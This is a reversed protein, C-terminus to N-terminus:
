RLKTRTLSLLVRFVCPLFWVVCNRIKTDFHIHLYFFKFVVKRKKVVTTRRDVIIRGDSIWQKWFVDKKKSHSYCSLTFIDLSHVQTGSTLVPASDLLLCIFNVCWRDKGWFLPIICLDTVSRVACSRKTHSSVSCKWPSYKEGSVILWIFNTPVFNGFTVFVMTAAEFMWGMEQEM